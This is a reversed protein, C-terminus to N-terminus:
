STKTITDQGQRCRHEEINGERGDKLTPKVDKRHEGQIEVREDTLTGTGYSRPGGLQSWRHRLGTARACPQV